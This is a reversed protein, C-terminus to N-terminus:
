LLSYRCSSGVPPAIVGTLEVLVWRCLGYYWHTCDLFCFGDPSRGRLGSPYLCAVLATLPYLLFLLNLRRGRSATVAALDLEAVLFGPLGDGHCPGIIVVVSSEFSRGGVLGCPRYCCYCYCSSEGRYRCSLFGPSLSVM